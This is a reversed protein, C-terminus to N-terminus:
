TGRFEQKRAFQKLLLQDAVVHKLIEGGRFKITQEVRQVADLSSDERGHPRFPASRSGPPAKPFGLSVSNIFGQIQVLPINRFRRPRQPDSPIRQISFDLLELQCALRHNRSHDAWEYLLFNGHSHTM